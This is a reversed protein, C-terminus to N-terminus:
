RRNREVGANIKIIQSCRKNKVACDHIAGALEELANIFENKTLSSIPKGYYGIHSADIKYMHKGGGGKTM